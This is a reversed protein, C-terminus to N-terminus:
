LEAFMFKQGKAAFVKMLDEVSLFVTATNDNPHVGISEYSRLETDIIVTVANDVDNLAGLPTVEGKGLKLYKYLDEESAFTLPKSGIIHRLEKLNASKDKQLVVLYYNRKKDDRLFLNKVVRDIHILQLNEMDGITFVAPHEILEYPIGMADLRALVRAQQESPM